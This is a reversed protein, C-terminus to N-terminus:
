SELILDVLAVVDLINIQLDANLDASCIQYDDPNIFELIINVVLIIDLVNFEDDQNIDGVICDMEMGSEWIGVDPATNVFYQAPVILELEGENYYITTDQIGTDICPSSEALEYDGSPGTVFQPAQDFNGSLWYLDFDDDIPMSSLGGTVDSNLFVISKQITNNMFGVENPQNNWLISNMIIPNATYGLRLGGDSSTAINETIVCHNFLPNANGSWGNVYIAAGNNATNNEILTRYINPSYRRVLIGGGSNANNTTIISYNMEFLTCNTYIGGGNSASCNQVTVHDLQVISSSDLNIGGGNGTASCSDIIVDHIWLNSHQINIGAGSSAAGNRLTLGSIEGTGDPIYKATMVREQHNGDLITQSIFDHNGTTLFHSGIILDKYQYSFEGFYIGPAILITDGSSAVQMAQQITSYLEPVNILGFPDYECDGSDYEAYPDFNMANIDTCGIVFHHILQYAGIDPAEGDFEYAAFEVVIENNILYQNTGADILPSDPLLQYLGQEIDVFQPDIQLNNDGWIVVYNDGNNIAELGGDVTCYDILIEIPAGETPYVIETINENWLISNVIEIVGDDVSIAGDSCDNNAVISNILQLRSGDSIAICPSDTVNDTISVGFLTLDTNFLSLASSQNDRFIAHSINIQSIMSWLAGQAEAGELILHSLSPNSFHCFVAVGDQQSNITFGSLIAHEGTENMNVSGLIITNEVTSADGTLFIEGAVIIEKGQYDISEEYIGPAVIICDYEDAANIAAQITTYDSPVRIMEEFDNTFQVPDREGNLILMNQLPLNHWTLAAGIGSTPHYSMLAYHTQQLELDQYNLPGLDTAYYLDHEEDSEDTSRFAYLDKGDSFVYNLENSSPALELLRFTASRLGTYVDHYLDINKLIWLFYLESDVVCDWGGSDWAGCGHSNPPNNLIWDMNEGNDTLLELLVNKSITGNHAFTLSRGNWYQHFPHPNAIEEAGTTARRVHGLAIKTTDGPNLIQSVVQQFLTDESALLPSHWFQTLTDLRNNTYYLLGWGSHNNYPYDNGSGEVGQAQLEALEFSIILSDEYLHYPSTSMVAWFKSASLETTFLIFFTLLFIIRITISKPPNM